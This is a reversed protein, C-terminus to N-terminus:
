LIHPTMERAMIDVVDNQMDVMDQHDFKHGKAIGEKIIEGIRLNRVSNTVGSGYEFKSNEPVNRSNSSHFYGSEPNIYFPMDKLDAIGVWDHQSTTGDLVSSGLYPYDNRRIPSTSLMFYAINGEIDSAVVNVGLSIWKDISSYLRDRM